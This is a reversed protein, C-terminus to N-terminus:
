SAGGPAARPRVGRRDAPGRRRSRAARESGRSERGSLSHTTTRPRSSKARSGRAEPRPSAAGPLGPALSRTFTAMMPRPRSPSSLTPITRAAPRVAWGHDSRAIYFPLYGGGHASWINLGPHRELLGSFIIRSLALATEAPNGVTNFLYYANLRTGLTCGWPHILVAAGLDAAAAWFGALRPDDLEM